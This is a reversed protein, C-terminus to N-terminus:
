GPLLSGAGFSIFNRVRLAAAHALHDWCHALHDWCRGAEVVRRANL